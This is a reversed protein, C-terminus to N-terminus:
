ASDQDYYTVGAKKLGSPSSPSQDESSFNMFDSTIGTLSNRADLLGDGEKNSAM